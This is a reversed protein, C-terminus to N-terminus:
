DNDDCNIKSVKRLSAGGASSGLRFAIVGFGAAQAFRLFDLAYPLRLFRFLLDSEM